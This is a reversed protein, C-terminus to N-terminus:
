RRRRADRPASTPLRAAPPPAPICRLPTPAPATALFFSASTLPRRPGRSPRAPLGRTAEESAQPRPDTLLPVEEAAPNARRAGPARGLPRREERLGLVLLSPRDQGFVLQGLHSAEAAGQGTATPGAARGRRRKADRKPDAAEEAQPACHGTGDQAWGRTRSLRTKARTPYQNINPTVARAHSNNDLTAKKSGAKQTWQHWKHITFRSRQKLVADM